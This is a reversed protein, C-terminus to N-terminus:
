SREDVMPGAEDIELNCKEQVLGHGMTTASPALAAVVCGRCNGPGAATLTAFSGQITRLNVLMKPGYGHKPRFRLNHKGFEFSM